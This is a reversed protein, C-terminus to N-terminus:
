QEVDNNIMPYILPPHWEDRRKGFSTIGFWPLPVAILYKKNEESSFYFCFIQQWDWPELVLISDCIIRMSGYFGDSVTGFLTVSDQLETDYVKNRFATTHYSLYFGIKLFTIDPWNVSSSDCLKIRDDSTTMQLTDAELFLTDSNLMMSDTRCSIIRYCIAWENEPISVPNQGVASFINVFFLFAAFIKILLM